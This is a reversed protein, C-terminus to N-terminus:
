GSAKFYDDVDEVSSQALAQRLTMSCLDEADMSKLLSVICKMFAKLKAFQMAPEFGHYETSSNELPLWDDKTYGLTKMLSILEKHTNFFRAAGAEYMSSRGEPQMTCVRGGWRTHDNVVTIRCCAAESCMTKLLNYTVALGAMGGGVVVVRHHRLTKTNRSM